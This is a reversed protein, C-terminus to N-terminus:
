RCRTEKFLEVDWKYFDVNGESGLGVSQGEIWNNFEEWNEEGILEKVEEENM